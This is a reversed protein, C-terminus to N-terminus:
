RHWGISWTSVNAREKLDSLSIPCKGDHRDGRYTDELQRFYGSENM